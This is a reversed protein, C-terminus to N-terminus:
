IVAIDHTSIGDSGQLINISFNTPNTKDSVDVIYFNGSYIAACYLKNNYVEIDHCYETIGHVRCSEPYEPNELSYIWVDHNM